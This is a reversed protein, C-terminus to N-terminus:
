TGAVEIVTGDDGTWTNPSVDGDFTYNQADSSTINVATGDSGSISDVAVTSPGVWTEDLKYWRVISGNVTVVLDSIVGNFDNGGVDGRHGVGLDDLNGSFNTTVDFLVVGDLVGICNTGNYELSAKHLKGDGISIPFSLSSGAGSGHGFRINGTTADKLIYFRDGSHRYFVAEQNANTTTSFTAEVKCSSTAGVDPITYHQTTASALETLYRRYPSAHHRIHSRSIDRIHRRIM